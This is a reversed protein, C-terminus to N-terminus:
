QVFFEAVATQSQVRKGSVTIGYFTLRYGIHIENLGTERDIGGNFPLLQDFPSQQVASATMIPFNNLTASGGSPVLVGAAFTQMPPVITGGDLRFYTVTYQNIQTDAMGQPDSADPDKLESALEITPVQVPVPAQVSIILPQEELSVTIFVPSEDEGQPNTCGAAALAAVLALAILAKTKM